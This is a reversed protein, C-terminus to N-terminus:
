PQIVGPTLVPVQIGAETLLGFQLMSMNFWWSFKRQPALNHVPFGIRNDQIFKAPNALGAALDASRWVRPDRRSRTQEVFTRSACSALEHHLQLISAGESVFPGIPNKDYGGQAKLARLAVATLATADSCHEFDDYDGFNQRALSPGLGSGYLPVLRRADDGDAANYRISPRMFYDDVPNGNFYSSGVDRLFRALRVFMEDPRTDGTQEQYRLLVDITLESMWISCWPQDPNGEDHQEATHIFCNQPPFPVAIGPNIQNLAAANGSIHKYATEFMEGFASLYKKDGTLRHGYYLGELSTGLLRETWLRDPGRIHGARYPVAFFPDTAWMDAIATGAQFVLDDGTLAYYAYLGRLHSYKSDPDPKGSFIGANPGSLNIKSAYYWCSRHSERLFRADNTHTHATLYTACRDYLWGEFNVVPDVVSEPDPNLAYDEAYMSSLGFALMADSLYTLGAFKSAAAEARTVQQGLIGTRALYGDPFTALVYPERSTFLTQRARQGEVLANVGNSSTITRVATDVSEPAATTVRDNRFAVITSGPASGTTGTWVVDVDMEPSTMRSAAFQIQVARVGTRNGSRDHVALIERANIELPVGSLLVRVRSVDPLTVCPPVPVAFSVLDGGAFTRTLHVTVRDAFSACGADVGVRLTVENSAASTGCANRSKVRVFYTGNGVRTATYSTSTGGLDANALNTLGSASGAELIYTTPSGSAASWSLVVTGGTNSAITFNGPAGPASTCSAGVVLLVENSSPGVGSANSARVRVYYSGSAVGAASYTTATNGTSFNALNVAGPSSGAEIVYSLAPDGTTPATWTLTVSNGSATATFNAPAGALVAATAVTRSLGYGAAILVAAVAVVSSVRTSSRPGTM